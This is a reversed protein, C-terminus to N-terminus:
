PVNDNASSSMRAQSYKRSLYNKIKLYSCSDRPQIVLLFGVASVWTSLLYRLLFFFRKCFQPLFLILITALYFYYNGFSRVFHSM